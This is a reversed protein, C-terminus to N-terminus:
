VLASIKIGKQKTLCKSDIKKILSNKDYEIYPSMGFLM